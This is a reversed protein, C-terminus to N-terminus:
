LTISWACEAISGPFLIKMDFNWRNVPCVPSCKNLVLQFIYSSQTLLFILVMHSKHVLWFLVLLYVLFFIFFNGVLGPYLINM